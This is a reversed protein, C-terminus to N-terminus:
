EVGYFRFGTGFFIARQELGSLRSVLQRSQDLWGGYGGVATLVPWDSGWMLRSTGFCTVLHDVYPQLRALSRDDGAESWLGSLKCYVSPCAALAAIAIAWAGSDGSEIPPKGAHDLVIPLTPYRRALAILQSLQGSRMLGDLRLQRALMAEFIPAFEPRLLWEPDEIDQVMPRLGKLWPSRALQELQDLVDAAEFDIWGVVGRVFAEAEAIQLLYHSEAVSAAAQVLITAAVDSRHAAQRFDDPSFDRYLASDQPTLWGYDGREISWFHQHCDLIM